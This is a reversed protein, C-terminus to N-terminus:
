PAHAARGRQEALHWGRRRVFYVGLYLNGIAGLGGAAEQQVIGREDPGSVARTSPLGVVIRLSSGIRRYCSVRLTPNM